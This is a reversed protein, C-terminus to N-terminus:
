PTRVRDLRQVSVCWLGLVMLWLPNFSGTVLHFLAFLAAISVAALWLGFVFTKILSM